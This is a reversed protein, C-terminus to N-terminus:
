RDGEKLDLATCICGDDPGNDGATRATVDVSGIFRRGAKGILLGQAVKADASAAGEAAADTVVSGEAKTTSDESDATDNEGVFNSSTSSAVIQSCNSEDEGEVMEGVLCIFVARSTFRFKQLLGEFLDKKALAAFMQNKGGFVDSLNSSIVRIDEIARRSIAPGGSPVERILWKGANFVDVSRLVRPLPGPVRRPLATGKALVVVDDANDDANAARRVANVVQLSTRGCYSQTTGKTSSIVTPGALGVFRSRTHSGLVGALSAHFCVGVRSKQNARSGSGRVEHERHLSPRAFCLTPRARGVNSHAAIGPRAIM